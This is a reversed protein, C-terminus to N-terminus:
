LYHTARHLPHLPSHRTGSIRLCAIYLILFDTYVEKFTIVTLFLQICRKQTYMHTHTHPDLGEVNCHRNDGGPIQWHFCTPLIVWYWRGTPGGRASSSPEVCSRECYLTFLLDATHTHTHAYHPSPTGPEDLLTDHPRPPAPPSHRTRPHEVEATPVAGGADGCGTETGGVHNKVVYVQWTTDVLPTDLRRLFVIVTIHIFISHPFSSLCMRITTIPDACLHHLQVSESSFTLNNHIVLHQASIFQHVYSHNHNSWRLSSSTAGVWEHQYLFVIITIHIFISHPFSRLCMRITTILDACLHHLQVLLHLTRM